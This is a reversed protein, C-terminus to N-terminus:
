RMLTLPDLWAILVSQSQVYGKLEVATGKHVSLHLHKREGDTESSYGTGLVGLQDGAAIQQNLVAGISSLRLHGYLVSVPEGELECSQIVVGGYGSVYNKYILQGPCVASVRVDINEEGALIEFDVGTHYGSFKEPSVPSTKPTIYIGFPKKTVRSLAESVPFVLAPSTAPAINTPSVIASNQPVEPSIPQIQTVSSKQSFFLFVVAGAILFIGFILIRKQM